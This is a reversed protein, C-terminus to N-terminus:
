PCTFSYWIELQPNLKTTRCKDPLCATMLKIDLVYFILNRLLIRIFCFSDPLTNWIRFSCYMVFWFIINLLVVSWFCPSIFVNDFIFSLPNMVKLNGKLSISCLSNSFEFYFNWFAISFCVFTYFKYIFIFICICVLSISFCHPVFWM